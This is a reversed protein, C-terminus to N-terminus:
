YNGTSVDLNPTEVLKLTIASEIKETCTCVHTEDHDQDDPIFVLRYGSVAM